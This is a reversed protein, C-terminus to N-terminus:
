PCVSWTWGSLHTLFRLNALGADTIKEGGGFRLKAARRRGCTPWGQGDGRCRLLFGAIAPGAVAWHTWRRTAGPRSRSWRTSCTTGSYRGYGPPVPRDHGGSANLRYDYRSRGSQKLIAAVAEKQKRGEKMRVALWSCALSCVLTFMLLTRIGFQFRRRFLLAVAFWLFMALTRRLHEGPGGACCLGQSVLRVVGGATSMGGRGPPARLPPPSLHFRRIGLKSVAPPFEAVSM